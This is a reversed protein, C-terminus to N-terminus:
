KMLILKRHEVFGGVELRCFYIGSSLGKADWEVVHEGASKTQAVLVDVRKGSVDYVTLTVFGEAPLIYGIRTVPNFPNPVATNLSATGPGPLPPPSSKRTRVIVCDIGEIPTGDNLQGKLTLPIVEGNVAYGLAAVIESTKFRLTLDTYGDPGEETCECEDGDAAPTSVDEYGYRIPAVGELLLTSVDVNKAEFDMTGLIAAPFVGGKAESNARLDGFDRPDRPEKFDQFPKVNMPNPCSGPKLDLDVVLPGAESDFVIGLVNEVGMSGVLSWSGNTKDVVYLSSPIGSYLGNEAAYLMGNKDFSMGNIRHTDAVFTGAGTSTDITILFGTEYAWAHAGYCIGTTPDFDMASIHMFNTSGVLTASATGKDVRYLLTPSGVPNELVYLIGDSPDIAAGHPLNLGTNGIVTTNATLPDIRVLEGTQADTGYLWGSENDYALAAVIPSGLPGLVGVSADTNDIHLLNKLNVESGFLHEVASVLAASQDRSPSPGAQESVFAQRRHDFRDTASSGTAVLVLVVAVRLVTGSM